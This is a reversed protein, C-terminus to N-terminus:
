FIQVRQNSYDAVYVDNNFSIAIGYPNSFQGEASGSSGFSYIFVGDKDFVSVHNNGREGVLIFGYLDSTLASPNRLHDNDFKDIYIGDLTFRFICNNNYDAVLLQDNSTVAVDWTNSFQGSEIIHSFQGNLHFVSVRCNGNEAVFMKDNHVVVGTPNRLQGSGTGSHGFQLLYTGNVDFKQVRHNNYDAVYLHNNADFSIGWPSQFQGSGTGNQGFKRMLGDESDFLYVYNNSQDTVVWVGDKGVAIGCPSSMKGDDNIVERPKNVTKYDRYVMITYPSGKIHDEEITISLKVEGVQKAVFSASYSGDNNDKM